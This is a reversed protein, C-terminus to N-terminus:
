VGRVDGGYMVAGGSSVPCVSLQGGMKGELFGVAARVLGGFFVIGAAPDSVGACLGASGRLCGGDPWGWVGGGAQYGLFRDM